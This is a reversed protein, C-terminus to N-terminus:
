KKPKSKKTKSKKTKSKKTKSKKTKSKFPTLMGTKSPELQQLQEIKQLQRWQQLQQQIQNKREQKTQYQKIHTIADKNSFIRDDKPFLNIVPSRQLSPSILKKPTKRITSKSTKRTTSKSGPTRKKRGPTSEPTSGPTSGPTSSPTRKKRGPTSGDKTKEDIIKKIQKISWDDQLFCDYYELKKNKLVIREYCYKYRPSGIDPRQIKCLEIDCKNGEVSLEFDILKLQGKNYMINDLTIDQHSVNTDILIKKIKKLQKKLDQAESTTLSEKNGLFITLPNGVYEIYVVKIISKNGECDSVLMNAHISRGDKNKIRKVIYDSDFKDIMDLENNVNIEPNLPIKLFVHQGDEKECVCYYYRSYPHRKQSIIKISKDSLKIIWENGPKKCTITGLFIDNTFSFDIFTVILKDNNYIINDLTINTNEFQNTELVKNIKQIQSEIIKIHMQRDDIKPNELFKSLIMGEIYEGLEVIIMYTNGKYDTLMMKSVGIIKQINECDFQQFFELEKNIMNGTQCLPIKIIIKKGGDECLCYLFRLDNYQRKNIMKFKNFTVEWNQNNYTVNGISM